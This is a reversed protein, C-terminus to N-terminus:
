LVAPFFINSKQENIREPLGSAIIMAIISLKFIFVSSRSNSQPALSTTIFLCAETRMKVLRIFAWRRYQWLWFRVSFVILIPFVIILRSFFCTQHLPIIWGRGPKNNSKSFYKRSLGLRVMDLSSSALEAMQASEIHEDALCPPFVKSTLM